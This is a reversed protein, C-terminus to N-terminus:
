YSVASRQDGVARPRAGSVEVTQYDAFDVRQTRQNYESVLGPWNNTIRGSSNRYWSTCSAWATGTLRRQIEADYRAEVDERVEVYSSRRSALHEVHQRVYRAQCELMYIISGSGLNTNPGYMIFMNPFSPVAMGLYARAGESWASRLERGARGRIEMPALLDQTAFGTGYVLVDAEHLAGDMTRVGNPVIEAINTTELHVNPQALAPYYNNAFLVRKCGIPYDPTLKARLVPDPVQERLHRETIATMVKAVLKNGTIGFVLLEAIAWWYLREAALTFPLHRFAARSLPGYERDFKPGIYPATRQFLTLKAAAPQLHPVFQIASAGTGIVAVRKGNFDYAHDWEASHFSKGTFSRRGAIEPISPRSLQGTAPVFVDCVFTEGSRTEIRWEATTEDFSASTVEVGFRIRSRLGHRDVVKNMYAKISAHSSFRQPWDPNPESAFSYYPSPVDCAAGPYTNERWVGGLEAAKELIVFDAQGSRSLELAVALGGFGAGIIVVRPRSQAADKM